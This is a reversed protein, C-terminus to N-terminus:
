KIYNKLKSRVHGIRVRKNNPILNDISVTVHGHGLSSIFCATIASPRQDHLNVSILYGKLRKSPTSAQSNIGPHVLFLFHPRSSDSSSIASNLLLQVSSICSHEFCMSYSSNPYPNPNKSEFEIRYVNKINGRNKCMFMSM